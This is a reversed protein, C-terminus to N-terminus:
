DREEELAQYFQGIKIILHPPLDYIDFSLYGEEYHCIYSRVTKPNDDYDFSIGKETVQVNYSTPSLCKEIESCLEDATPPTLAKHVIEYDKKSPNINPALYFEGNNAANYKILRELAELTRKTKPLIAGDNWRRWEEM